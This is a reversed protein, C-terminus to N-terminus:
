SRTPWNISAAGAVHCNGLGSGKGIKTEGRHFARDAFFFHSRFAFEKWKAALTTLDDIEAIPSAFFVDDRRGYLRLIRVFVNLLRLAQQFRTPEFSEPPFLQAAGILRRGSSLPGPSLKRIAVQNPQPSTGKAGPVMPDSAARRIAMARCRFVPAPGPVIRSNAATRTRGPMQAASATAFCCFRFSGEITTTSSTIPWHIVRAPAEVSFQFLQSSDNM